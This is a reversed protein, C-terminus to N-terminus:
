RMNPLITFTDLHLAQQGLGRTPIVLRSAQNTREWGTAPVRRTLRAQERVKVLRRLGLGMTAVGKRWESCNNRSRVRKLAM